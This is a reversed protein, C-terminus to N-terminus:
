YGADKLAGGFVKERGKIAFGEVRVNLRQEAFPHTQQISDTSLFDDGREVGGTIQNRCAVICSVGGATLRSGDAVASM